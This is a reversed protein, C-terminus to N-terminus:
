KAFYNNIKHSKIAPNGANARIFRFFHFAMGFNYVFLRFFEEEAM